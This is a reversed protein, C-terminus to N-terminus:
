ATVMCVSLSPPRNIIVGDKGDVMVANPCGTVSTRAMAVDSLLAIALCVVLAVLLDFCITKM